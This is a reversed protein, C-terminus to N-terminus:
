EPFAENRANKLLKILKDVDERSVLTAEGGDEGNILVVTVCPLHRGTKSHIWKDASIQIEQTIM